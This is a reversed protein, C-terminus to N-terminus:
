AGILRKNEEPFHQLELEVVHLHEALAKVQLVQRSWGNQSTAIPNRYGVM